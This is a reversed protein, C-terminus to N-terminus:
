SIKILVEFHIGTSINMIADMITHSFEFDEISIKEYLLVLGILPLYGECLLKTKILHHFTEMHTGVCMHM